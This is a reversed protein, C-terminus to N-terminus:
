AANAERKIYNIVPFMIGKDDRGGEAPKLRWGMGDGYDRLGDLKVKKANAPLLPDRSTALIEALWDEKTYEENKVSGGLKAKRIREKIDLRNGWVLGAQGARLSSDPLLRFVEAAIDLCTYEPYSVSLQVFREILEEEDEGDFLTVPSPNSWSMLALSTSLSPQRLIAFVRAM